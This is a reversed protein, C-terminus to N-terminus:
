EEDEDPDEYEEDPDDLVQDLCDSCQSLSGDNETGEFIPTIENKEGDLVGGKECGPYLREACDVCFCQGDAIYGVVTDLRM